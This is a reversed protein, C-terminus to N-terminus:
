GLPQDVVVDCEGDVAVVRRGEPTAVVWVDVDRGDVVATGHVQAVSGPDGLAVSPDAACLMAASTDDGGEGTEAEPLIDATQRGVRTALEDVLDAPAAFTGLHGAELLEDPAAASTPAEASEEAGLDSEGAGDDGDPAASGSGGRDEVGSSEDASMAADDTDDSGNSGALALGVVGALLAIAAAAGLWRPLARGRSGGQRRASLDAVPPREPTHSAPRGPTGTAAGRRADAEDRDFADLAAAVARERAAPDPPPVDRLASRAADIAAVRATVDPRRRAAEAADPPLLGDVLASALEDPTATDGDVLPEGPSGPSGPSSPSGPGGVGGTERSVDPSGSEATDGTRRPDRGQDGGPAPRPRDDGGPAPPRPDRPGPDGPAPPRPDDPTM